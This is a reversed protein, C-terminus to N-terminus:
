SYHKEIYTLLEQAKQKAAESEDSNHIVDYLYTKYRDRYDPDNVWGEKPYLAFSTAHERDIHSAPRQYKDTSPGRYRVRLREHKIKDLVDPHDRFEIPIGKYTSTEGSDNAYKEIDFSDESMVSEMLNLLKKMDM